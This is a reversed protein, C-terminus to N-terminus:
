RPRTLDDIMRAYGAVVRIVVVAVLCAVLAWAVFGAAQVAVGLARAASEDFRDAMRDLAEATTGTAEGVAVAEIAARPLSGCASLAEPLDRGGRLLEEVRRREVGLGPAVRSALEVQAGIGVGAHAALAAARCWAAAEAMVAASGVVPLRRAAQWAWGRRRWSRRGALAVAAAVGTAAAVAALFAAAGRRGVLGVGLMDLPAGDVGRASGAVLIMVVIAAIAVLLRIAPGVLAARVSRRLASSRAITRAVEDLVEALRGTRDGVLLMGSVMEPLVDGAAAAAEGLGAGAALRAAVAEIAPRFRRPVRTAEATWARRLDIGASVAVALRHLMEALVADPMRGM